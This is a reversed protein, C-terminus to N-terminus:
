NLLQFNRFNQVLFVLLFCALFCAPSNPLCDYILTDPKPTLRLVKRRGWSHWPGLLYLSNTLRRIVSQVLAAAIDPFVSVISISFSSSHRSLLVCVQGSIDFMEGM